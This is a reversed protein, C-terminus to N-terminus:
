KGLEFHQRDESFILVLSPTNADQLTGSCSIAILTQHLCKFMPDLTGPDVPENSEEEKTHSRRRAVQHKRFKVKRIQLISHSHSTVHLVSRLWTLTWYIYPGDEIIIISKSNFNEHKGLYICLSSTLLRKEREKGREM